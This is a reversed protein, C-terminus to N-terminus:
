EWQLRTLATLEEMKNILTRVGQVRSNQLALLQNQNYVISNSVPDGSTTTFFGTLLLLCAGVTVFTRIDM